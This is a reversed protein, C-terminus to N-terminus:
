CIKGIRGRDEKEKDGKFYIEILAVKNEAAYYAYIVRIGSNAGRGKLAKCAFKRAKYIKPNEIGLDPISVIGQNDKDLKHYLQLQVKIFVDLDDEPTKFRKRLKKLDKEFEPWRRVESFIKM